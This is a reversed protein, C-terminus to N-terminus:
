SEVALVQKSGGLKRAKEELDIGLDAFSDRVRKIAPIPDIIEDSSVDIVESIM